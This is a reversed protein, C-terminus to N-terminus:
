RQSRDTFRKMAVYGNADIAFGATAAAQVVEPAWTIRKRADGPTILLLVAEAAGINRLSRWTDAPIAYSDWGDQTGHLQFSADGDLGLEVGGQYVSLM